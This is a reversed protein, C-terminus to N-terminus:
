WWKNTNNWKNYFDHNESDGELAWSLGITSTNSNNPYGFKLYFLNAINNKTDRFMVCGTNNIQNVTETNLKFLYDGKEDTKFTDNWTIYKGRVGSGFKCMMEIITNPRTHIPIELSKTQSSTTLEIKREENFGDGKDKGDYGYILISNDDGGFISFLWHKKSHGYLSNDSVEGSLSKGDMLTTIIPITGIILCIIIAIALIKSTKDWTIKFHNTEQILNLADYNQGSGGKTQNYGNYYSDYKNIYHRELDDLDYGYALVQYTFNDGNDYDRQLSKNHHTGSKLERKHQDWRKPINTSQGVYVKNNRENVIAYIGMKDM